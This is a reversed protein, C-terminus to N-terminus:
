RRHRAPGNAQRRCGSAPGARAEKGPDRGGHNESDRYSTFNRPFKYVGDEGKPEKPKGTKEPDADEAEEKSMQAKLEAESLPVQKRDRLGKVREIDKALKAFDKSAEM